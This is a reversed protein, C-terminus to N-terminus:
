PQRAVRSVIVTFVFLPDDNTSDTRWLAGDFEGPLGDTDAADITVTARDNTGAGNGISVGFGGTTKSLVLPFTGDKERWVYALSWGTMNQPSGGSDVVDIRHTRKGGAPFNVEQGNATTTFEPIDEHLTM